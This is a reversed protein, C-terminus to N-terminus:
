AVSTLLEFQSSPEVKWRHDTSLQLINRHFQLLIPPHGSSLFPIKQRNLIEYM